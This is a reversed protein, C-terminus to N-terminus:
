DYTVGKGLVLDGGIWASRFGDSYTAVIDFPLRMEGDHYRDPYVAQFMSKLSEWLIRVQLVGGLPDDVVFGETASMGFAKLSGTAERTSKVEMAFTMSSLNVPEGNASFHYEEGYDSNTRCPFDIWLPLSYIPTHPRELM